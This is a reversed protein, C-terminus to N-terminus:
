LKMWRPRWQELHTIHKAYNPWHVGPGWWLSKCASLILWDLVVIPASTRTNQSMMLPSGSLLFNSPPCCSTPTFLIQQLVSTSHTVLMWEWHAHPKINKLHSHFFMQSSVIQNRLYMNNYKSLHFVVVQLLDSRILKDNLQQLFTESWCSTIDLKLKSFGHIKVRFHGSGSMSLNCLMMKEADSSRTLQWATQRFFVVAQQESDAASPVSKDKSGLKHGTEQTQYSVNSNAQHWGRPNSWRKVTPSPMVWRALQSINLARRLKTFLRNRSPWRCILAAM